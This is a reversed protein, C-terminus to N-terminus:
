SVPREVIWFTTHVYLEKLFAEKEIKADDNDQYFIISGRAIEALLTRRLVWSEAVSYGVVILMSLRRCINTPGELVLRIIIM